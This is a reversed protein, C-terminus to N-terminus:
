IHTPHLALGLSKRMIGHKGSRIDKKGRWMSFPTHVLFLTSTGLGLVM